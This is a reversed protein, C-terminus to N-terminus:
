VKGRKKVEGTMVVSGGTRRAIKSAENIEDDTLWYWSLSNGFIIKVEYEDVSKKKKFKFM